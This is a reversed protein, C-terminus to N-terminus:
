RKRQSIRELFFAKLAESTLGLDTAEALAMDTDWGDVVARKMLWM